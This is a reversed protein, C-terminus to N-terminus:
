HIVISYEWGIGERVVTVRVGEDRSSWFNANTGSGLGGGGHDINGEGAAYVTVPVTLSFLIVFLLLRKRVYKM